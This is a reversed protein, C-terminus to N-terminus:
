LQPKPMSGNLFPAKIQFRSEIEQQIMEGMTIYQTFILCAEKQELIEQVLELLKALKHSREAARSPRTEKLYLAPHDCLQKLKNLMQLVVGRREFASLQEIRNLTEQVYEEYLAAQEATLPCYQKQELKDPLNLEVEPDKKTRRPM